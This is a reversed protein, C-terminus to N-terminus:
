LVDDPSDADMCAEMGREMTRAGGQTLGDHDVVDQETQRHQRLRLTEMAAHMRMSSVIAHQLSSLDHLSTGVNSLQDPALILM